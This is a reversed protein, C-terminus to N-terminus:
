EGAFEAPLRFVQLDRGSSGAMAAFHRGDPSCAVSQVIYTGSSNFECVKNNTEVEWVDTKGKVGSVVYRSNPTFVAVQPMEEGLCPPFERGTRIEWMRLSFADGVLVRSGDPAIAVAQSSRSALKMTQIAGAQEIDILALIEGDCALAQKGDSTIFTAKVAGRFGDVVFTEKGTELNWCRAKRDSGGSLVMTCDPAITIAEVARDHGNFHSAKTLEGGPAVNWVQIPGTHGGSLLTKGDPSFAVCVQGLGKLKECFAVRTSTNVDFVVLTSNMKGVALFRGDPSFALSGVGGSSDGLSRVEGVMSEDEVEIVIPVPTPVVAPKPTTAEVVPIPNARFYEAYEELSALHELDVRSLKELPVSTTKGDSKELYVKGNRVTVLEAEVRFSGSADTWERACLPSLSMALLLVLSVSSVRNM